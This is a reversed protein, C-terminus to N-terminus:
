APVARQQEAQRTLTTACQLCVWRIGTSARIDTPQNCAECPRPPTPELHTQTFDWPNADTITLLAEITANDLM